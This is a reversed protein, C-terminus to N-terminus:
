PQTLTDYQVTVALSEAAELPISATEGWAKNGSKGTTNIRAKFGDILDPSVNLNGAPISVKVAFGRSDDSYNKSFGTAEFAVNTSKGTPAKISIAVNAPKPTVQDILGGILNCSTLSISAAALLLIKM